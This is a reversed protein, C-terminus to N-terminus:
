DAANSAGSVPASTPSDVQQALQELDTDQVEIRPEDEFHYSVYSFAGDRRSEFFYCANRTSSTSPGIRVLPVVRLVPSVAADRSVFTLQESELAERTRLEFEEFVANAGRLRQARRYTHVGQKYRGEEILVLDIDDFAAGLAQEVQVDLDQDQAVFEGHASPM